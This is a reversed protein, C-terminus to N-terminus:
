SICRNLSYSHNLFLYKIIIQKEKINTSSVAIKTLLKSIYKIQIFKYIYYYLECCDKKNQLLQKM